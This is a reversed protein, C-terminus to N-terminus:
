AFQKVPELKRSWLAFIFGLVLLCATVVLLMWPPNGGMQFKVTSVIFLLPACMALAVIFFAWDAWIYGQRFPVFLIFTLSIATVLFGAGFGNVFLVMLEAIRGEDLAKLQEWTLRLAELHYPMIEKAFLYHIGMYYLAITPIIWCGFAAKKQWTKM